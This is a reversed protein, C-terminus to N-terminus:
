LFHRTRPRIAAKLNAEIGDVQAIDQTQKVTINRHRELGRVIRHQNISVKNNHGHPNLLCNIQLLYGHLPEGEIVDPFLLCRRDHQAPSPATLLKSHSQLERVVIPLPQLVAPSRRRLPDAAIVRIPLQRLRPEVIKNIPRQPTVAFDIDDLGIALLLDARPRAMFCQPVLALARAHTGIMANAIVSAPELDGASKRCAPALSLEGTTQKRGSLSQNEILGRCTVALNRLLM